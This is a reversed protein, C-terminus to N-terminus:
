RKRKRGEKGDRPLPCIGRVDVGAQRLVRCQDPSFKPQEASMLVVAIVVILAARSLAL